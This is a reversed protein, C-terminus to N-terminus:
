PRLHDFNLYVDNNQLHKPPTGEPNGPSVSPKGQPEWPTGESNRPPERPTEKTTM